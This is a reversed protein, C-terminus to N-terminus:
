RSSPPHFGTLLKATVVLLTLPDEADNFRQKVKAEAARDLAYTSWASPEDKATGVTMVVAVEHPLDRATILRTLTQAYAVVMERDFAVVQAKMGVPATKDQYHDLIDTCVAEIRKPNLLLTKVHAARAALVEREAESLNEEEALQAFAEDLASKDLHFNVLRTEVHVPVSAGDAISREMSYTNLIYGPDSPDGFLKFTNRDKDSIPTGTLGFFRANPLAQRLDDGLRGEQTRHAEDVMVIINDRENLLGADEFRFITTLVIGRRDERLVQRLEERSGAPTM